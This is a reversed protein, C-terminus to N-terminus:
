ESELRKVETLNSKMYRKYKKILKKMEQEKFSVNVKLQNNEFGKEPYDTQWESPYEPIRAAAEARAADFEMKNADGTEVLTPDPINQGTKKSVKEEPLDKELILGYEDPVEESNVDIIEDSM